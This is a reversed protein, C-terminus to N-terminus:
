ALPPPIAPARGFRALSEAVVETVTVVVGTCFAHRPESQFAPFRGTLDNCVLTTAGGRDLRRELQEAYWAAAARLEPTVPGAPDPDGLREGLILLGAQVAGCRDEGTLGGRRLASYPRTPVGFTEALAIGCSRHPVQRGEYLLRARERLAELLEPDTM